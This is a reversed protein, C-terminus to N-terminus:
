FLLWSSPPPRPTQLVTSPTGSAYPPSPRHTPLSLRISLNHEKKDYFDVQNATSGHHIRCDASTPAPSVSTRTSRNVEGQDEIM